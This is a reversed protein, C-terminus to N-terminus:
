PVLVTPAFVQSFYRPAAAVVAQLDDPAASAPAVPPAPTGFRDSGVNVQLVSREGEAVHGGKHLGHTDAFFVTGRRGTIEIWADEPYFRRVAKDSLRQGHLLSTPKEQHSGRVYLHAGNAPGVDTLYVFMKIFGARDNDYHFHQASTKDPRKWAFSKWLVLSMLMPDVGLYRGATLAVSRQSLVRRVGPSSLADAPQMWWTPAIPNPRGAGLGALGDGRPQAPGGDLVAAIEAVVAESLRVDPICYGDSRVANAVEVPDIASLLDDSFATFDEAHFPVGLQRSRAQPLTGGSAWAALFLLEEADPPVTGTHWYRQYARDFEPGADGLRANTRRREYAAAPRALVDVARRPLLRNAWRRVGPGVTSTM